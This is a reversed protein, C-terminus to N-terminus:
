RPRRGFGGGGGGGGERPARERAENVSLTRGGLEAGNMESVARDAAASDALTVFGFGRPKGTERDTIIKVEDVQGFKEFALRLEAESTEWSLSGVFLKKSM